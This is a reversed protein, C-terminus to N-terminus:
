GAKGILLNREIGTSTAIQKGTTNLMENKDCDCNRASRNHEDLRSKLSRKSRKVLPFQKVTVVTLKMFLITKIM